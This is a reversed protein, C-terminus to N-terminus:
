DSKIVLIPATSKIEEALEASVNNVLVRGGRISPDYDLKVIDIGTKQAQLFIIVGLVRSEALARYKESGGTGRLSIMAPQETDIWRMLKKQEEKALEGTGGQYWVFYDYPLSSNLKQWVSTIDQEVIYEGPAQNLVSFPKCGGLLIICVIVISLRNAM